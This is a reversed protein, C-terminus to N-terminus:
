KPNGSLYLMRLVDLPYIVQREIRPMSLMLALIKEYDQRLDGLMGGSLFWTAPYSTVKKFTADIYILSSLTLLASIAIKKFEEYNQLINPVLVTYVVRKEENCVKCLDTSLKSLLREVSRLMINTFFEIRDWKDNTAIDDHLSQLIFQMDKAGWMTNVLRGQTITLADERCVKLQTSMGKIVSVFDGLYKCLNDPSVSDVDFDPQLSKGIETRDDPLVKLVVKKVGPLSKMQDFFPDLDCGEKSKYVSVSANKKAKLCLEVLDQIIRSVKESGEKTELCKLIDCGNYTGLIREDRSALNFTDNGVKIHAIIKSKSAALKQILHKM